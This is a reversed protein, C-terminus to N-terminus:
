SEEKQLRKFNESVKSLWKPEESPGRAGEGAQAGEPALFRALHEVELFATRAEREPRAPRGRDWHLAHTTMRLDM